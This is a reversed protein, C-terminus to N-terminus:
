EVGVSSKLQSVSRLAKLLRWGNGIYRGMRLVRPEGRVLVLVGVRPDVRKLAWTYLDLPVAVYLYDALLFRKELQKVIRNRPRRKVEVVYVDVGQVSEELAVLDLEVGGVVVHKLVRFGARSLGDALVEVLEEESGVDSSLM